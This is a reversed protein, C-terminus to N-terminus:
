THGAVRESCLASEPSPDPCPTDSTLHRLRCESVQCPDSLGGEGVVFVALAVERYGYEQPEGFMQVHVEIVEGALGHAGSPAAFGM